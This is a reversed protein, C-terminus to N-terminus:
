LLAMKYQKVKRMLTMSEYTGYNETNQVVYQFKRSFTNNKKINPLLLDPFIIGNRGSESGFGCCQLVQAKGLTFLLCTHKYVVIYVKLYFIALGLRKLTFFLNSSDEFLVIDCLM